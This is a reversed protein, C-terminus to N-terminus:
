PGLIAEADFSPVHVVFRVRTLRIPAAVAHSGFTAHQESRKLQSQETMHQM